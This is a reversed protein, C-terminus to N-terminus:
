HRLSPLALRPESVLFHGFQYPLQQTSEAVYVRQVDDMPVDLRTPCLDICFVYQYTVLLQELRDFNCVEAQTCLQVKVVGFRSNCFTAGQEEHRRLDQALVGVGFGDIYPRSGDDRKHQESTLMRYPSLLVHGCLLVSGKHRLSDGERRKFLCRLSFICVSQRLVKEIPNRLHIWILTVRSLLTQFVGPNRPFECVLYRKGDM